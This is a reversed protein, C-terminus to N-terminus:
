GGGGKVKKKMILPSFSCSMLHPPISFPFVILIAGGGGAYTTWTDWSWCCGRSWLSAVSTRASAAEATSAATVTLWTTLERCAAGPGAGALTMTRTTLVGSCWHGFGRRRGRGRDSDGDRGCGPDLGRARAHCCCRCPM